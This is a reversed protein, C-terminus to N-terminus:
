FRASSGPSTERTLKQYESTYYKKPDVRIPEADEVTYLEGKKPFTKNFIGMFRFAAPEEPVIAALDTAAAACLALDGGGSAGNVVISHGDVYPLKRLQEIAALVDELAEGSQPDADRNRFTIAVVVYGAALYRSAWAGLEIEKVREAPFALMGGHILVVAPFSGKGAPKRQFGTGKHGDRATPAIAELAAVEESIVPRTEQGGVPAPAQRAPSESAGTATPASPPSIPQEQKSSCGMGAAGVIAGFVFATRIIFLRTM